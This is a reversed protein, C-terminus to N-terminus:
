KKTLASRSGGTPRTDQLIAMGARQLHAQAAKGWLSLWSRVCGSLAGSRLQKSSEIQSGLERTLARDYVGKGPGAIANTVQHCGM